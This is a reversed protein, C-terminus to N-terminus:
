IPQTKPSITKFLHALVVTLESENKTHFVVVNRRYVSVAVCWDDTRATGYEIRTYPNDKPTRWSMITNEDAKEDFEDFEPPLDIIGFDDKLGTWASDTKAELLTVDVSITDNVRFGQVFSADVGTVTHYRQYLASCQELPLTRPILRMALIGGVALIAAVYYAITLGKKM